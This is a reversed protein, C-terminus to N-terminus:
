EGEAEVRARGEDDVVVRRPNRRSEFARGIVYAILAFVFFVLLMWAIAQLSEIITRYLELTWRQPTLAIPAEDQMGTIYRELSHIRVGGSIGTVFIAFRLYRAWAGAIEEAVIRKLIGEISGSFLRVVGWSVLVAVALTVALLTFFFM